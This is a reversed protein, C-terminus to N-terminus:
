AFYRLLIRFQYFTETKIQTMWNNRNGLTVIFYILIFSKEGGIFQGPVGDARVKTYSYCVGRCKLLVSLM